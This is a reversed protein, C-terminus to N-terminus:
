GGAASHRGATCSHNSEASENFNFCISIASSVGIEAMATCGFWNSWIQRPWKSPSILQQQKLLAASPTGSFRSWNSFFHFRHIFLAARASLNESSPEASKTVLELRAIQINSVSVPLFNRQMCFPWALRGFARETRVGVVLPSYLKAVPASLPSIFSQSKRWDFGCIAVKLSCSSVIFANSMQFLEKNAALSSPVKAAYSKRFCFSAVWDSAM